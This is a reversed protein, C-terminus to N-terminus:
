GKLKLSTTCNLLEREFEKVCEYMFIKGGGSTGIIRSPVGWEIILQNIDVGLWSRCKASYRKEAPTYADLKALAEHGTFFQTPLIGGLLASVVVLAFMLEYQKKGLGREGRSQKFFV